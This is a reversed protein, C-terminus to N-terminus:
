HVLLREGLPINAGFKDSWRDLLGAPIDLLLHAFLDAEGLAPNDNPFFQVTLNSM